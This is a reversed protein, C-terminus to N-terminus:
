ARRLILTSRGTAELHAGAELRTDPASQGDTSLELQWADGLAPPLTFPVPEHHANFILLFSDGRIPNGNRDHTPIEAGNIFMAIARADGRSWDQEGMEEGDPRLWVVDPLGSGVQEDGSLFDRRRFVPESQRLAVLRTVFQELDEDRSSWDFWSLENDQCWANNNGQQTRGLQDGGLLMPLGQSLM